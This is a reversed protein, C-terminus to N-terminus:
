EKAMVPNKLLHGESSSRLLDDHLCHQWVMLKFESRLEFLVYSLITELRLTATYAGNLESGKQPCRHQKLSNRLSVNENYKIFLRWFLTLVNRTDWEILEGIITDTWSSLTLHVPTPIDERPRGVKMQMYWPHGVVGAVPAASWSVVIPLFGSM